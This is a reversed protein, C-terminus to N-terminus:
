ASRIGKFLINKVALYMLSSDAGHKKRKSFRLYIEEAFLVDDKANPKNLAVYPSICGPKQTSRLDQIHAPIDEFYRKSVPRVGLLKMDGKIVNLLQPIEDLWYKRMVKGWSTLRFDNAPKGNPGYGNNRLIYDQLYESYPHMTRFKYVHILKGNKGIRPMKYVPGYSSMQGKVGESVKKVVFYLFGDINNEVHVLEFGHCVFRGLVEAKTLRRNKERTLCSYIIKLGM